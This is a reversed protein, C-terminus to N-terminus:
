AGKGLSEELKKIEQPLVYLYSILYDLLEVMQRAIIENPEKEADFHAGLNGGDRIAHSLSTLPAALDIDNKAYEILKALAANRKDESVLNKFIGEITRRAGVATAVYNKSNLADITSVFSRQLSEPIDPTFDPSPYYNKLTPYMYVAAPNDREGKPTQELRVAWFHVSKDCGPCCATAAIALRTPDEQLRELSFVGKDGCFPCVTSISAPMRSGNSLKSWKRVTSLNINQM